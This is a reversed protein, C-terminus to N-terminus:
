LKSAYSFVVMKGDAQKLIALANSQYEDKKGKIPLYGQAMVGFLGKEKNGAQDKLVAIAAEYKQRSTYATGEGFISEEYRLHAIVRKPEGEFAKGYPAGHQVFEMKYEGNNKPTLSVIEILFSDGGALLSQCLAVISGIIILLTKM